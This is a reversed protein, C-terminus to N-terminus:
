NVAKVLDGRSPAEGTHLFHTVAANATYLRETIDLEALTAAIYGGNFTDGAGATRVPKEVYGQPIKVFGETRTAAAAFHPTHIVLEELGARERVIDAKEVQEFSEGYLSFLAAGEHENVSLTMPMKDNMFSLGKLTHELSSKDRKSVDAFDFFFRRKKGDDKLLMYIQSVIDDFVPLLSWYGVGIIDSEVLIKDLEAKGVGNVVREWSMKHLAEMDTMLIKGDAFELVYTIAPDGVSIMRSIKALPEFLPDLQDKGFIGAMTTEVGLSAAAYGINATFGGFARRKKILEIGMGGSGVKNIREAFQTMKSLLTFDSASARSGVMEWVEDVFGDAFMSIKGGSKELREAIKKVDM